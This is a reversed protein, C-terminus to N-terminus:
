PIYYTMVRNEQNVYRVYSYYGPKCLMGLKPGAGLPHSKCLRGNTTAQVQLRYTSLKLRDYM